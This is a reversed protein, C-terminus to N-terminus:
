ARAAGARPQSGYHCKPLWFLVTPLFVKMAPAAVGGANPYLDYVHVVGDISGSVLRRHGDFALASVRCGHRRLAERAELLAAERWAMFADPDGGARHM